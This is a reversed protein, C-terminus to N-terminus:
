GNYCDPSFAGRQANYNAILAAEIYGNYNAAM